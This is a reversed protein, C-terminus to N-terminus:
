TRPRRGAIKVRRAKTSSILTQSSSAASDGADRDGVVTDAHSREDSLRENTDVRQAEREALVVAQEDRRSDDRGDARRREEELVADTVSREAKMRDDAAFREEMVLTSRAPSAFRENALIKDAKERFIMLQHDALVRDRAILIDLKRQADAHSFITDATARETGLSADTDARGEALDDRVRKV